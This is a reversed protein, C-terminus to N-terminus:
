YQIYLEQFISVMIKACKACFVGICTRHLTLEIKDEEKKLSLSLHKYCTHNKRLVDEQKSALDNKWMDIYREFGTLTPLGNRMAM